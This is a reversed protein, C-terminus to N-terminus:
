AVSADDKKGRRHQRRKVALYYGIVGIGLAAQLVFLLAETEGGPWELLPSFWPRYGPALVKVLGVAQEDTGVSAASGAPAVFQMLLLLIGFSRHGQRNM